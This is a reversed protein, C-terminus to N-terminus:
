IEKYISLDIAVNVAALGVHVRIIAMCLSDCQILLIFPEEYILNTM